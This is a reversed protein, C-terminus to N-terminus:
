EDDALATDMVSTLKQEICVNVFDGVKKGQYEEKTFEGYYLLSDLMLLEEETLTGGGYGEEAKTENEKSM